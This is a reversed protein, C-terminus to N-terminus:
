KFIFKGQSIHSVKGLRMVTWLRDLKNSARRYPTLIHKEDLEKFRFMQLLIENPNEIRPKPKFCKSTSYVLTSNQKLVNEKINLLTQHQQEPLYM